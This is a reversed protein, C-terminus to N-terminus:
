FNLVDSILFENFNDFIVTKTPDGNANVLLSSDTKENKVNGRALELDAIEDINAFNISDANSNILGGGTTAINGYELATGGSGAIVYTDDCTVWQLIMLMM